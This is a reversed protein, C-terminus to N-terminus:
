LAWSRKRITGRLVEAQRRGLELRGRDADVCARGVVWRRGVGRLVTEWVKRPDHALGHGSVAGDHLHALLNIVPNVRALKARKKKGEAAAAALAALGAVGGGTGDAVPPKFLDAYDDPVDEM